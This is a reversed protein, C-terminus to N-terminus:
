NQCVRKNKFETEPTPDLENREQINHLNRLITDEDIVLHNGIGLETQIFSLQQGTQPKANIEITYDGMNLPQGDFLDIFSNVAQIQYDQTSDFKLKM